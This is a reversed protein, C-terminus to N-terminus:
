GLLVKEVQLAEHTLLQFVTNGVHIEYSWIWEDDGIEVESNYIFSIASKNVFYSNENDDELTLYGTNQRNTTAFFVDITKM